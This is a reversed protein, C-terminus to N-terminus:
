RAFSSTYRLRAPRGEESPHIVADPNILLYILTARSDRLNKEKNKILSRSM